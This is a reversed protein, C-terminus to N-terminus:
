IKGKLLNELYEKHTMKFYNGFQAVRTRPRYMEKFDVVDAKFNKPKAVAIAKIFIEPHMVASGMNVFHFNEESFRLILHNFCFGAVNALDRWAGTYFLHWFDAGPTTFLLVPIDKDECLRTVSGKPALTIPDKDSVLWKWVLDATPKLCDFSELLKEIPYSHSELNKDTPIQFDHFISGGNHILMEVKDQKIVEILEKQATKIVAGGIALIKKM